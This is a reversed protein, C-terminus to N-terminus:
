SQAWQASRLLTLAPYSFLTSQPYSPSVTRPGDREAGAVSQTAEPWYLLQVTGGTVACRGCGLTCGPVGLTSSTPWWWSKTYNQATINAFSGLYGNSFYPAFSVNPFFVSNEQHVYADKITNCLQGGVSAQTCPPKTVHSLQSRWSSLSAQYTSACPPQTEFTFAPVIGENIDCHSPPTPSPLLESSAYAEWQSQCQPVISPLQCTPKRVSSGDYSLVAVSTYTDTRTYSSGPRASITYVSTSVSDTTRTSIAFGGNDQVSTGTYTSIITETTGAFGSDYGSGTSIITSVASHKPSAVAQTYAWYETWSSWCSDASTNTFSGTTIEADSSIGSSGKTGTYSGNTTVPTDSLGFGSAIIDGMGRGEAQGIWAVALCLPTLLPLM